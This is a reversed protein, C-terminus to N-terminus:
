IGNVTFAAWYYPHAFPCFDPNQDALYRYRDRQKYLVKKNKDKRNAQRYCQAAYVAVSEADLDRVWLQAERLAAAFTMKGQLHNQYFREMLMATSLDPVSWLSSIVCPVGALLFGAPIGTYEDSTGSLIDIVGTECASLTVLRTTSLDVEGGQLEALTLDGDALHLASQVPNNWNYQGHCAFHVYGGRRMGAIIEQKTAARGSIIKYGGFSHAIATGEVRSFVLKSDEQPNIVGYLEPSVTRALKAECDALVRLSPIYSIQYRDLISKSSQSAFTAAHLPFLFLKDIPLFIVHEITAPLTVLLPTLLHQSLKALTNTITEKWLTSTAQRPEKISAEYAWLWGGIAHGDETDRQLTLASLDDQKFLPLEVVQINKKEHSVVFGLSGQFTICFAVVVTREDPVLTHITSLDLDQLFTPAYTRVREIAVNLSDSAQRAAQILSEYDNGQHFSVARATVGNSLTSQVVTRAKEFYQWIDEPVDQPKTVRLRLAESLQRTKGHELLLLAENRKDLRVACFPARHYLISNIGIHSARSTMSLGAQYLREGLAIAQQFAEFAPEWEGRTFYIVALNLYAMRCDNPEIEPVYFRIAEQYCAIARNENEQVNESFEQYADGFRSQLMAYEYPAVEPIWFRLAEQYCTIARQLFDEQRPWRTLMLDYYARGMNIQIGAYEFPATQPDWFRQAEHYCTLAALLSNEREDRRYYENAVTSYANGLGVQVRAYDFPIAEPTYFRLAEQYCAIARELNERQSGTGKLCYADGMCNQAKAYEFSDTEPTLFRLAEECYAIAQALSAERDGSQMVTYASGLYVLLTAYHFPATESTWYQLAQKFYDLAKKQNVERDGTSLAIYATGLNMLTGARELPVTEPLRHRLAEEFCAISRWQYEGPQGARLNGYIVGLNNMVASYFIPTKDPELREAIQEYVKILPVLVHPDRQRRAELRKIYGMKMVINFLILEGNVTRQGLVESLKRLWM